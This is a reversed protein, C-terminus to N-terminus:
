GHSTEQERRQFPFGCGGCWQDPTATDASDSIRCFESKVATRNKPFPNEIFIGPYVIQLDVMQM